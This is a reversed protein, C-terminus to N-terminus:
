YWGKSDSHGLANAWSGYRGKVYSNGWKLADVPNNWDGPIKSCPLSQVLGCAGSSPNVANPNWSSERNILKNVYSWDSEAIGAAKMWEAKSGGGSYKPLASSSSSSAVGKKLNNEAKLKAEAEAEAEAIKKAEAEAKKAKDEAEKKAKAEAEKKKKEAEAKKKAEAVRKAEAKEEAIRKDRDNKTEQLDKSAMNVLEAISFKEVGINAESIQQGSVAVIDEVQLKSSSETQTESQTNLSAHASSGLLSFLLTLAVTTTVTASRKIPKKSNITKLM